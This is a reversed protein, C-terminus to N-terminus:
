SQQGRKVAFLAVVAEVLDLALRRKAPSMTNLIDNAARGLLTAGDATGYYDARRKRKSTM